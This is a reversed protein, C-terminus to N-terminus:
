RDRYVNRTSAAFPCTPSPWIITMHACLQAIVCWRRCHSYAEEEVGFVWKKDNRGEFCCLCLGRWGPRLM